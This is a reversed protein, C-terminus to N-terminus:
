TLIVNMEPPGLFLDQEKMPNLILLLPLVIKLSPDSFDLLYYFFVKM